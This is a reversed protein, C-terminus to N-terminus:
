EARTMVSTYGGGPWEWAGANSRGDASFTGRFVASSGIEGGWIVLSDGELEYVYALFDGSTGYYQSKLSQSEEDFRIYEIGRIPRGDHMLDVHQLLFHGGEMWEYRVTGRPGSGDDGVRWSGVLPELSQLAPNPQDPMFSEEKSIVPQDIGTIYSM